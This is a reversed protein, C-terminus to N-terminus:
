RGLQTAGAGRARAAKGIEEDGIRVQLLDHRMSEFRADAALSTRQWVRGQGRADSEIAGVKRVVDQKKVARNLPPCKKPIDAPGQPLPPIEIELELGVAEEGPEGIRIDVGHKLRPDGHRALVIGSGVGGAINLDLRAIMQGANWGIQELQADVIFRRVGPRDTASSDEGAALEQEPVLGIQRWLRWGIEDEVQM